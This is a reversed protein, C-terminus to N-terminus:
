PSVARTKVSSSYSTVRQIEGNVRLSVGESDIAVVQADGISDGTRVLQDNVMAVPEAGGARIFSVTYGSNLLQTASGFLGAFFGEEQEEDSMVLPAGAPRTPDKLEEGDFLEARALNGCLASLLSLLVLLRRYSPRKYKRFPAPRKRCM